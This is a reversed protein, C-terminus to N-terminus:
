VPIITWKDNYIDAYNQPGSFNFWKSPACIKDKVKGLYAGWWSFTSNSMIVADCQSLLYLDELESKSNSIIVNDINIYKRYSAEDDTCVIVIYDDLNYQKLSNVYYDRTCVLHTDKYHIYDGLRVHMGIIKKPIKKFANNIKTKIDDSFNWLDKIKDSHKEFHKESQFYGEIIMDINNPIPSYSWDLERFVYSPTETTHNIKKFFDHKHNIPPQGQGGTHQLDYNIAFDTNLDLSKSYAAAITFMQNGLGGKLKPIIM